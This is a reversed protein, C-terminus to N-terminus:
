FEAVSLVTTAGSAIVNIQGSFYDQTGMNYSGGPMLTIGTDLVATSGFNMTVRNTNHTNTIVITKRSSNSAALTSSSTGATIKTSAPTASTLITAPLAVDTALTVRVTKASTAGSNGDVGAQGAILNVKCRDSEDWDDMIGLSAVAPDDSGLTIRQTGAAVAGAGKTVTSGGIEILNVDASPGGGGGTSDVMLKGDQTFRFPAVQGDLYSPDNDKYVGGVIGVKTRVDNIYVAEDASYLPFPLEGDIGVTQGQLVGARKLNSM